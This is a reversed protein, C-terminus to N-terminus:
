KEITERQGGHISRCGIGVKRRKLKLDLADM